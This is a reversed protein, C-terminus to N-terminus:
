SSVSRQCVVCRLQSEFKGDGDAETDAERLKARLNDLVSFLHDVALSKLHGMSLVARTLELRVRNGISSVNWISGSM